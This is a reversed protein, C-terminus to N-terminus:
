HGGGCGGCSSSGCSSGGGGCSSGGSGCGSSSGGDSGFSWNNGSGTRIYSAFLGTLLAGEALGRIAPLGELAFQPVTPGSGNEMNQFRDKFLIKVERKVFSKTSLLIMVILFLVSIFITEVVLLTIPKDNMVGQIMRLFAMGLVAIPFLYAQYFPERRNELKKLAELAPHSFKERDYWNVMISEYSQKSGNQEKLYEPILPNTENRTPIYNNSRVLFRNNNDMELLGRKLLDVIGAQIARHKDFLFAAIQFPTIDEPFIGKTIEILQKEVQKRYIAYSLIIAASYLLFFLLFHPGGLQFPSPTDYGTWIVLFPLIFLVATWLVITRSWVFPPITLTPGTQQPAPWIDPPPDTGFVTRYLQLTEKYWDQHKRDEQDGGSSPYHHLERGLTDKCFEIWYSRTYTLHLHWVEDITQSPAAGKESVCCLLIFKRYEEIAKQTFPISWKQEAALKGSFTVVAKEDDFVFAQIKNWLPLYDQLIM